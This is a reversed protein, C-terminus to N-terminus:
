FIFLLTLELPHNVACLPSKRVFPIVVSTRVHTDSHTDYRCAIEALSTCLNLRSSQPARNRWLLGDLWRLLNHSLCLHLPCGGRHLHLIYSGTYKTHTHPPPSFPLSILTISAFCSMPRLAWCPPWLHLPFSVSPFPTIIGIMFSIFNTLSTITISVAAEAYTHGLRESVTMTPSTRRWAALLVFADDM